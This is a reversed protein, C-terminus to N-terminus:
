TSSFHIPSGFLQSLCLVLSLFYSPVASPWWTLIWVFDHRLRQTTPACLQHGQRPVNVTEVTPRQEDNAGHVMVFDKWIRAAKKRHESDWTSLVGPRVRLWTNKRWSGLCGSIFIYGWQNSYSSPAGDLILCCIKPFCFKFSVHEYCVCLAFEDM